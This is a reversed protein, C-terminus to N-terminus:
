LFTSNFVQINIFFIFFAAAKKNLLRGNGNVTVDGNAIIVSVREQDEPESNLTITVADTCIITQDGISTYDIVTPVVDSILQEKATNNVLDDFEYAIQKNDNVWDAGGGLRKWMQFMIFYADDFAKRLQPNSAVEPPLRVQKPPNVRNYGM